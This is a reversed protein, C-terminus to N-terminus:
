ICLIGAGKRKKQRLLDVFAELRTKIGEEGTQEDLFFTLVPINYDKSVKPLISKAVIEPICSFPALQVVGDFGRKAYLITEGISNQGHGGVMEGLYSRAARKIEKERPVIANGRAWDALYISRDVFVGLGELLVQINRNIFPELVVYIEGIIGVRLIERESDIPIQSLLHRCQERATRMEPIKRAQDLLDLCQSFVRTTCGPEIERPRIQHSLREIQDIINLKVWARHLVQLFKGFGFRKPILRQLQRIFDRPNHLPPEFVIFELEHGLDRLIKQQLPWYFGARCPGIGGTAVVAEAGLELAELYSGLLIKLPICAFEPSYRTGYDLTRKTPNPPVIPEHGLETLLQSFVLHSNGMYPFTVKM